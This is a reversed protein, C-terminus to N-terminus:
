VRPLMRSWRPTLCAPRERSAIKRTRNNFRRDGTRCCAAPRDSRDGAGYRDATPQALSPHDAVFAPAFRSAAEAAAGINAGLVAIEIEAGGAAEAVQRALTVASRSAQRVEDGDPEAIVLIKMEVDPYDSQTLTRRCRAPKEILEDVSGVTVCERKPNCTQMELVEIKPSIAVGLDAASLEELPQRRAKM